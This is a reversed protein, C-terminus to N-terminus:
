QLGAWVMHMFTNLPGTILALAGGSTQTAELEIYDGVALLLEASAQQYHTATAPHAMLRTATQTAGNKKIAVTRGGAANSTWCVQGLIRYRGATVVTFRTLAAPAHLGDTDAEEVDLPVLTAAGSAPAAIAANHYAHVLPPKVALKLLAEVDEALHQMALAGDAVRDTADPYRLALNATTGM